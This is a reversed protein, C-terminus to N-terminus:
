FDLSKNVGGEEEQITSKPVTNRFFYDTDLTQFRSANKKSFNLVTLADVFDRDAGQKIKYCVKLIINAWEYFDCM